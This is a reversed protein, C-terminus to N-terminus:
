HNSQKLIAFEQMVKKKEINEGGEPIPV